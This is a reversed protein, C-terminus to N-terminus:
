KWSPKWAGAHELLEDLTYRSSSSSRRLRRVFGLRQTMILSRDTAIV